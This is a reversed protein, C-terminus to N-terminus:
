TRGSAIHKYFYVTPHLVGDPSAAYGPVEGVRTWGRHAYIAEAASDRLTDLVLLTVGAAAAASEAAAMLASGIGRGRHSSLVLLKQLEARHRGNERTSRVIQVTGVVVGSEEAVWLRLSEALGAVVPQWYRQSEERALPALFGVSAGGHVSDELVDCLAPVLGPEDETIERITSM